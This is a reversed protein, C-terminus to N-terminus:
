KGQRVPPQQQLLGQVQGGLGAGEEGVEREGLAHREFPFNPFLQLRQPGASAGLNQGGNGESHLGLFSHSM